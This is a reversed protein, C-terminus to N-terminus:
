GGSSPGRTSCIGYWCGPTSSTSCGPGRVAAPDDDEDGGEAQLSALLVAALGQSREPLEDRHVVDFRRLHEACEGYRGDKRLRHAIMLQWLAGHEYPYAGALERAAEPGTDALVALPDEALLRTAGARRLLVSAVATLDDIRVASALAHGLHELDAGFFTAARAGPGGVTALVQTCLEKHMGARHLHHSYYRSLYPDDAEGDLFATGVARHAEVPHLRHRTGSLLHTRFSEHYIRVADGERHTFEGIDALADEIDSLNRGTVASLLGATMGPARAVALLTLVPRVTRWALSACARDLFDDYVEGLDGPLEIADIDVDHRDVDLSSIVHRAYLYNGAAKAAIRSALTRRSRSRAGPRHEGDRDARDRGDGHLRSGDWGHGRLRSGDRTPAPEDRTLRALCYDHVDDTGAPADHTLHVRRGKIRRLAPEEVERSTLLIRFDLGARRLGSTMHALLTIVNEHSDVSRAEDLADVVLVVAPPDPMSELPKRVLRNFASRASEAGLRLSEINIGRVHAGAEASGVTVTANLTPGSEAGMLEAFHGDRRVLADVLEAVLGHGLLTDDDDARCLHGVVVTSADGPGIRHLLELALATKGSGPQGVILLPEDGRRALHDLAHEVVWSRGVFESM